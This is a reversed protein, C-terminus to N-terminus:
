ADAPLVPCRGARYAAFDSPKLIWRWAGDVALLHGTGTFREEAGGLSVTIRYTVARSDRPKGEGPVRWPEEKESLVEVQELRGTFPPAHGECAVYEARPVVRQHAPYLNEWAAAHEGRYLHGFVQELFEVPQQKPESGGCGGVVALLAAALLTPLIRM